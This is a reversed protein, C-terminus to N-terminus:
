TPRRHSYQSYTSPHTKHSYISISTKPAIVLFNYQIIITSISPSKYLLLYDQHRILVQTGLAIHTKIHSWFTEKTSIPVWISFYFEGLSTYNGMIIGISVLVSIFKKWRYTCEIIFIECPKSDLHWVCWIILHLVLIWSSYPKPHLRVLTNQM